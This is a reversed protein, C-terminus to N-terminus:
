RGITWNAPVGVSPQGPCTKFLDPPLIGTTGEASALDVTEAGVFHRESEGASWRSSDSPAYTEEGIGCVAAECMAVVHALVPNFYAPYLVKQQKSPGESLASLKHKSGGLEEVYMGPGHTVGFTERVAIAHQPENQTRPRERHRKVLVTRSRQQTTKRSSCLGPCIPEGLLTDLTVRGTIPQGRRLVAQCAGPLVHVDDREPQLGEGEVIFIVSSHRYLQIYIKHQGVKEIADGPSVGTAIAGADNGAFIAVKTTHDLLTTQFLSTATALSQGASVAPLVRASRCRTTEVKILDHHHGRCERHEPGTPLPQRTNRRLLAEM